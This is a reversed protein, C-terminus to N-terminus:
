EVGRKLHGRTIAHNIPLGRVASGLIEKTEKEDEVTFILRVSAPNLKELKKTYDLIYLPDCNLITNCCFKCDCLVSFRRGTEDQLYLKKEKEKIGRKCGVLTNLVCNASYMMPTYGYGILESRDLGRGYLEKENLELSATTKSIGLKFLLGEARRNTTYLNHDAVMLGNVERSKLYWFSELSGLLFGDFGAKILLDLHTDYYIQHARRFIHPMHYFCKRKSKKVKEATMKWEDPKVTSDDIYIEAIKEDQLVARLQDKNHVQATYIPTSANHVQKTYNRAEANYVGTTYIPTQENKCADGDKYPHYAIAKRFFPKLIERKLEEIARRRLDNIQGVTMFCEDGLEITLKSFIFDSAGLKSLQKELQEKLLPKNKAVLPEDGRVTVHTGGAFLDITVPANLAVKISGSIKRKCEKKIYNERLEQQWADDHSRFAPASLTLMDRGNHKEYYGASFGNRNYLDFLRREDELSVRYDQGAMYLDLYKRYISVVGATYETKKMRGEIKLSNVGAEIIKPLLSLTNMDKLSLVYKEDKKPNLVKKSPELVQYPKRCPQACRGRNGSRGGALSSFLCQGSYSYCIAGHVFTEIELSTEERIAKLEDLSLERAPVVRMVGLKELLRAGGTGTVTMQTSAHISLGPFYERVFQM